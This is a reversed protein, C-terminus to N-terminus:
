LIYGEIRARHYLLLRTDSITIESDNDIDAADLFLGELNTLRSRHAKILSSDLSDAVGDGNVDGKVVVEFAEVLKDGSKLVVIDGTAVNKDDEIATGNRKVEVTYNNDTILKTKFNTATTSPSVGVITDGGEVTYGLTPLPIDIKIEKTGSVSPNTVSTATVTVKEATENAGITLVGAETIATAADTGGTVTWTVAKEADTLNSGEVKATLTMSNGHNLRNSTAEITVSKVVVLNVDLTGVKTNDYNSIAAVTIKEATENAGITLAGTTENIRTYPNTAGYVEWKVTKDADNLNEGTVTATFTVMDGAKATTNGAVTVGTVLKPAITVTSTGNKTNDYNSTAKVTITTATEDAAVTLVGKEDITTGTSLAGEVSWTVAKDDDELNEGTVVVTFTAKEGKDLSVAQENIVVSTVAKAFLEITKSAMITDDFNSTAVITIQTATEDAAVTLVGNNDITTNESTAGEVTWFVTTDPVNTGEVTATFTQTTGKEMKTVDENIVVSNVKIEKVSYRITCESNIGISTTVDEPYGNKAIVTVKAEYDGKESIPVYAVGGTANISGKTSTTGFATRTADIWELQSFIPPLEVEMITNSSDYSIPEEIIIEHKQRSLDLNLTDERAFYKTFDGNAIFEFENLISSIDTYRNGALNLDKLKKMPKLKLNFEGQLMNDSVDLYRLKELVQLPSIDTIFNYSLDLAKLTKLESWWDYAIDGSVLNHGAYFEKLNKLSSLNATKVNTTTEGEEGEEEITEVEADENGETPNIVSITVDGFTEIENNRVDIKKLNPLVVYRSIEDHATFKNALSMLQNFFYNDVSNTYYNELVENLKVTEPYTFGSNTTEEVEFDLYSVYTYEGQCFYVNTNEYGNSVERYGNLYEDFINYLSQNYIESTEGNKVKNYIAELLTIDIGEYEYEKMQKLLYEEVFCEVTAVNGNMRELLCYNAAMSYINIEEFKLILEKWASRTAQTEEYAKVMEQLAYSIPSEQEDSLALGFARVILDQELKSLADADELTAIRSVQSNVLEKVSNTNDLKELYAEYEEETLYNLEPTLITTLRYEKNFTNYMAQLRPYIASININLGEQPDNLAKEIADLLGEVEEGSENVGGYISDILGNIAEKKANKEEADTAANYEAIGENIAKIADEVAKIAAEVTTYASTIKEKSSSMANLREKFAEQLQTTVYDKNNQLEYIVALTDIYNFSVNLESELGWFGELGSLDSIRQDNLILSPIKNTIDSDRIVLVLPEDYYRQYLDRCDENVRLMKILRTTTIVGNDNPVSVDVFEYITDLIDGNMNKIIELESVFNEIVYLEEGNISLRADGDVVTYNCVDYYLENDANVEYPYSILERNILQGETLQEKVSLYLNKDKFIIAEDYDAHVVYYLTFISDKLINKSSPNNNYSPLSTDKISIVVKVLGELIHYTADVDEGIHIKFSNDESTVPTPISYDEIYPYGYIHKEVWEDKLIGQKEIIGNNAQGAITLIQPLTAEYILTEEETDVPVAVVSHAIQSSLNIATSDIALLKYILDQIQSVDTIKNSSLDLYKLNPLNNLVALNSEESLNNASLILSNVNKFYDLGTIDEIGKEKLSIGEISELVSTEMKITRSADDYRASIGIEQFYAKLGKYLTANFSMSTTATTAAQVQMLPAICNFLMIVVLALSILMKKRM